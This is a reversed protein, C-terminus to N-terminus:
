GDRQRDPAAEVAKAILDHMQKGVNASRHRDGKAAGGKKRVREYHASAQMDATKGGRGADRMTKYAM